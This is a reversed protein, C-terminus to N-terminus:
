HRRKKHAFRTSFMISLGLLLFLLAAGLLVANFSSGTHPLPGPNAEETTEFPFQALPVGNEDLVVLNGDEDIVVTGGPPPTIPDTGPNTPNETNDDRVQIVLIKQEAHNGSIDVANLLIAYEDVKNWDINEFAIPQMDTLIEVQDDYNDVVSVGGIKLLAKISVPKVGRRIVVPSTEVTIVPAIRDVIHIVAHGRLNHEGDKDTWRADFAFPYSGPIQLTIVDYNVTDYDVPYLTVGSVTEHTIENTVTAELYPAFVEWSLSKDTYTPRKDSVDFTFEDKYSLSFGAEATKKYYITIHNEGSSVTISQASASDYEYDKIDKIYDSASIVTGEAAKGSDGSAISKQTDVDVHSITYKYQPDPKPDPKSSGTSEFIATLVLDEAPMTFANNVIDVLLMTGQTVQWGVFRYGSNAAAVLEIADDKYVTIETAQAINEATSGATATGAGAPSVVTTVTYTKETYNATLTVDRAPMTFSTAQADADALGSEGTWNVFNYDAVTGATLQITEGEQASITAAAVPTTTGSATATGSPLATPNTLVTVTYLVVPPEEEYHATVVVNKAPMKFTTNAADKNDLDGDAINSTGSWNKFDYGSPETAALSVTVDKKAFITVAATESDTVYARAAGDPIIDAPDVLVTVSYFTEASNTYNIDYNNYAYPYDAMSFVAPNVLIKEAHTAKDTELIWAATKATNGSFTVGAAATVNALSATSTGRYIGGGNSGATNGKVQVMGNLAVTGSTYIGGGSSTATNKTIEANNNATVSGSSYIGGGNPGKNESISANDNLTVAGTSAYVGGGYYSKATNNAVKANDNMTLNAKLSCIGGAHKSSTNGTVLTNGGLTITKASSAMAIGGGFVATNDCIKVDDATSLANTFCIAGGGGNGPSSATYKSENKELTLSGGLEAKGTYIAGGSNMALNESILVNGSTRIDTARCAGGNSEATNDTMVIGKGEATSGALTTVIGSIGTHVAGGDYYAHNGTFSVSDSITTYVTSMGYQCFGGGNYAENGAFRVNGSITVGNTQVYLGGGNGNLNNKVTPTYICSNDQFLVNGSVQLPASDIDSTMNKFFLGGGGISTNQTGGKNSSGVYQAAKNGVFSVNGSVTARMDAVMMGGGNHYATNGTFSVSGDVTCTHGAANTSFAFLGGGGRGNIGGSPPAAYGASTDNKYNATNGSFAASDTVVVSGYAAFAGGGSHTATNNCTKVSDQIHLIVSSDKEASEAGHDTIAYVGAGNYDATSNQITTTGALTLKHGTAAGNNERMLFISGGNEATNGDFITDTIHLSTNYSYIGGGSLYPFDKLERDTTDYEIINETDTAKCNRITGGVIRLTGQEVSKIGGATKGGDLIVDGLSLTLDSAGVIIHRKDAAAHVVAVTADSKASVLTLAYDITLADTLTIDDTLTITPEKAALAALLATEDAVECTADQTGILLAATMVNESELVVAGEGDEAVDAEAEGEVPAETADTVDEEDMDADPEELEKDEEEPTDTDLTIDSVIEREEGEIDSARVFPTVGSVSLSVLLAVALLLSTIRHKNEKLFKMVTEM